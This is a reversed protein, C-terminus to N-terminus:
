SLIEHVIPIYPLTIKAKGTYVADGNIRASETIYEKLLLTAQEPNEYIRSMWHCSSFMQATSIIENLKISDENSSILPRFIVATNLTTSNPAFLLAGGDPTTYIGTNNNNKM